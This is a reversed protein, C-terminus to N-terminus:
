RCEFLARSTQDILVAREGRDAIELHVAPEGQALVDGVSTAQMEGIRREFPRELANRRRWDVSQGRRLAEENGISLRPAAVRGILFLAPAHQGIRMRGALEADVADDGVLRREGSGEATRHARGHRRRRILHAAHPSLRSLDILRPSSRLSSASCARARSNAVLMTRGRAAAISRSSCYGHSMTRASASAFNRPMVIGACYPPCPRENRPATSTISSIAFAQVTVPRMTTSVLMPAIEVTM